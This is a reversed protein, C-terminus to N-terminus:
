PARLSRLHAVLDGVERDGLMPLAPMRGRGKRVVAALDPARSLIPKDVLALGLAPLGLAEPGHCSACREAYVARGRSPDGGALPGDDLPALAEAAVKADMSPPEWPGADPGYLAALHDVLTDTDAPELSAGWGAMKKVTAAWKERPLRQQALLEEGHCSLCAERVLATGTPRAAAVPAADAQASTPTPTPAEDRRCAAALVALGVLVQPRM